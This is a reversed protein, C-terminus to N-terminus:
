IALGVSVVQSNNKKIRIEPLGGGLNLNDDHCYVIWIEDKESYIYKWTYNSYDIDPYMNQCITKGIEIAIEGNPVCDYEFSKSDTNTNFILISIICILVLIITSLFTIVFKKKM